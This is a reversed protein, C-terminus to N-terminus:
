SVPPLATLFARLDLLEQPPGVHDNAWTSIVNQELVNRDSFGVERPLWRFIEKGLTQRWLQDPDDRLDAYAECAALLEHELALGESEEYGSPGVQDSIRAFASRDVDIREWPLNIALRLRRETTWGPPRGDRWARSLARHFTWSGAILDSGRRLVDHPDDGRGNSRLLYELTPPHLSLNEIEHCGLVHVEGDSLSAAEGDTRFDRDIVAGVRLPQGTEQALEAITRRKALVQRCGGAELFRLDGTGCLRYFREREAAAREGEILIFRNQALSFAPSGLAGSLALVVPRDSLRTASRVLRSTSERELLFSSDRGAAEVAELSHTSLWVQGDDISDRLFSVWARILDPNLHLEPEDVLLLGQRLGFREIQGILFAIEREGGSLSSFALEDGTSDFLPMFRTMDVTSFRLHPLVKRLNESYSAFPDEFQPPSGGVDRARRHAQQLRTASQGERAVMYNIWEGYLTRSLRFSSALRDEVTEWRRQLLQGYEHPQVVTPPYSRDADLSLYFVEGAQQVLGLLRAGLAQGQHDDSGAVVRGDSLVTVTGDWTDLWAHLPEEVVDRLETPRDTLQLRAWYSGQQGAPDGRLDEIGRSLGVRSAVIGVLELLTTKGTGNEGVLCVLSAEPAIELHVDRLNRFSEVHLELIRIHPWLPM